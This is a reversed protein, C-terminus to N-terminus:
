TQHQRDDTQQHPIEITNEDTNDWILHGVESDHYQGWKSTLKIQGVIGFFKAALNEKFSISDIQSM